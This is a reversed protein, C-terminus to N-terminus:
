LFAVALKRNSVYWQIHKFHMRTFRILLTPHVLQILFYFLISLISLYISYFLYFSILHRYYCYHLRYTYKIKPYHIFLSCFTGLLFVYERYQSLLVFLSSFPWTSLLLTFIIIFSPWIFLKMQAQSLNHSM